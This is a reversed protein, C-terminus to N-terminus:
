RKERVVSIISFLIISTMILVLGVIITGIAILAQNTLLIRTEAFSTLTMITFFIGISFFALGPLGYFGIPHKISILKISTSLVSLGHVTPNQTSTEGEYSMQVSVESITLKQEAAKVLIETGIGMAEETPFIKELCQRDYARLGSQSDTVDLDQITNAIKTLTKIGIERYKPISSKEDLFRSGIVLNSENKEIPKILNPIDRFNHQGDSDFTVLVDYNLERSKHFLSQIAGGYGKNKSHKIVVSGMKEAIFGTNDSSADDCVLVDYGLKHINTILPAINKEENYAPLGVIVKL